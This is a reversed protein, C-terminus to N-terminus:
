AGAWSVLLIAVDDTLEGGNKSRVDHMLGEVLAHGTRERSCSSRLCSM